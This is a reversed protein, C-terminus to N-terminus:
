SFAPWYHMCPKTQTVGMFTCKMHCITLFAIVEKESNLICSLFSHIDVIPSMILNVVMIIVVYMFYWVM